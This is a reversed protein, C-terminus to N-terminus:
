NRTLHISGFMPDFQYFFYIGRFGCKEDEEFTEQLIKYGPGTEILFAFFGQSVRSIGEDASMWSTTKSGKPEIKKEIIARKM